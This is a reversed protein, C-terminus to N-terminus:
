ATTVLYLPKRAAGQAPATALTLINGLRVGISRKPLPIRTLRLGVTWAAQRALFDIPFYNRSRTVAAGAYGARALMRQMTDSNFLQPHQLCFAPWRAGLIGRLSSKENHTVIMLMGGPRLKTRIAALMAVPDLLHDLVHVMVALGISRDPVASLDTMDPLIAAPRGDTATRLTAHVARNPEFLWFRDFCDRRAAEAVIYGVDPGIELYGGGPAGGAIAADFYGRQTAAIADSPVVDMNPPMASYLDSLQEDDFFSRNYLLSCGDCRSYSFFLKEKFFGFWAPRLAALPLDEARRKSHIEPHGGADGCLPCSRAPFMM